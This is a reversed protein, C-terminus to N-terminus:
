VTKREIGNRRHLIAFIAAIVFNVNVIDVLVIVIVFFSLFILSLISHVVFFPMLVVNVVVFM